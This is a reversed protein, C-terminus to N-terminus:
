GAVLKPKGNEVVGEDRFVHWCFSKDNNFATGLYTLPGDHHIPQGTGYVRLFIRQEASLPDVLYWLTPSGNQYELCLFNAIAPLALWQGGKEKLPFKWVEKRAHTM